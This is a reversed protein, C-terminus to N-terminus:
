TTRDAKWVAHAAAAYREHLEHWDSVDELRRYAMDLVEHSLKPSGDVRDCLYVVAVATHVGFGHEPKRTFVGVLRRVKVTLGTEEWAERVAAEEPSENPEVWGCPLCWRADDARQVLLIRGEEDFVAAEAGVKPTIYGLEGSLRQRVEPEPLDLAQAYYQAVLGLIRQYRERDYVGDTFNLGTRALAQLEDLLPFIDM